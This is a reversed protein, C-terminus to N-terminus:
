AKRRAKKEATRRAKKAAPSELPTTKLEQGHELGFIAFEGRRAGATTAEGRPRLEVADAYALHTGHEQDKWAGAGRRHAANPPTLGRMTGILRDANQPTMKRGIPFKQAPIQADNADPAGGVSWVGKHQTAPQEVSGPELVRGTQYDFTAGGHENFANAFLRAQLVPHGRYEGPRRIRDFPNPSTLGSM